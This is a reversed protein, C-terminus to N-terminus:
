ASRAARNGLLGDLLADGAAREGATLAGAEAEWERVGRFGERLLLKDEAARSLWSSFSVGDEDAAREVREAVADDLSVSRKTM